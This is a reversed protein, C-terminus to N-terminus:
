LHVFRTSDRRELRKTASVGEALVKNKRTRELCHDIHIGYRRRNRALLLWPEIVGLLTLLVLERTRSTVSLVVDEAAVAEARKAASMIPKLFQLRVQCTGPRPDVSVPPLKEM